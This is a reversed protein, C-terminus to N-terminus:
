VKIQNLCQVKAKRIEEAANEHREANEELGQIQGRLMSAYSLHDKITAAGWTVYGSKEPSYFREKYLDQRAKTPNVAARGSHRHEVVRARDRLADTVENLILTYLEDRLDANSMSCLKDLVKDTLVEPTNNRGKFRALVDEIVPIYSM